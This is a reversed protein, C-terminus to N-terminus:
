KASRWGDGYKADLWDFVGAASTLSNFGRREIPATVSELMYSLHHHFIYFNSGLEMSYKCFKAVAAMPTTEFGHFLAPNSLLGRAAMVGDVNTKAVM